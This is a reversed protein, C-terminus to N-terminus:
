WARRAGRAPASSRPGPCPSTRPRCAPHTGSRPGRRLDAVAHRQHDLVHGPDVVGARGVPEPGREGAALVADLEGAVRVEGDRDVAGLRALGARGTAAVRARRVADHVGDGRDARRGPGASGQSRGGIVPRGDAGGSVARVLARHRPRPARRGPSRGRRVGRGIATSRPARRGDRTGDPAAAVFRAARNVVPGYCDGDQELVDGTAVGARAAAFVEHRSFYGVLDLATYAVATPDLSVFMVEDGITKVIRAGRRTALDFSARNFDNIARALEIASLLSGVETSSALDVFGVAMARVEAFTGAAVGDERFSLRSHYRYLQAVVDLLLDILPRTGLNREIIMMPDGVDGHEVLNVRFVSSAAAALQAVSGGARRLLVLVAEEGFLAGAAHTARMWEVDSSYWSPADVDEVALGAAHLFGIAVDLPIEAGTAVERLSMHAGVPRNGMDGALRYLKEVTTAAGVEDATAGADLLRRRIRAVLATATAAAM